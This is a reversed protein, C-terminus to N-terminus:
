RVAWQTAAALLASVPLTVLWALLMEKVIKWHVDRDSLGAGIIAGSSVHTTSVPLAFRSAAGVLVSTVLNAALGNSTSIRTVKEALTRTVRFGAVVSGAGMALAVLGYLPLQGIGATLAAAVGLALVKPTDNMGRFFSTAGSSIWHLSDIATVRAVATSCSQVSGVEVVPMADRFAIGEPTVAVTQEVCVCYRDFRAIVPRLLPLFLILLALAIVPSAVLPVVIKAGLAPWIVGHVGSQMIGAGILAGVLSHTTSVPMGTRTAVILWAIAGVAIALLFHASATTQTLIGKGSFTAVLGQSAFAATLAGVVTCLSGWAIARRYNSVGSGVLTAIGKSVDNAGNAFAVVLTLAILFIPLM